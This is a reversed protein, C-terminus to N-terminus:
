LQGQVTITRTVGAIDTVLITALMTQSQSPACPNQPQFPFARAAGAPVVTTGFQAVLMPQPFTIPSGGLHTGDIMQITVQNVTIPTSAGIVLDFPPVSFPPVSDSTGSCMFSVFPARQTVPPNISATITPEAPTSTPTVVTAFEHHDCASIAVGVATAVVSGLIARVYASVPLWNGIRM